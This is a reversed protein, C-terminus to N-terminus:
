NTSAHKSEDRFQWLVNVTLWRGDRTKYLHMYDIWDDVTLKVSAVRNDIDLIRIEVRPNTPFKDGSKNYTNAVKIMTDFDTELVFEEHDKGLWYTRKALTEDLSRAMMDGDGQHQSEIYDLVAREILQRDPITNPKDNAFVNTFLLTTVLCGVYFVAIRCHKM